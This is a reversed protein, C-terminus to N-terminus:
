VHSVARILDTLLKESANNTIEIIASGIHIIAAPAGKESVARVSPEKLEAFEPENRIFKALPEPVNTDTIEGASQVLHNSLQKHYYWYSKETVNHEECWRAVTIGREIRERKSEILAQAWWARKVDRSSQLMIEM